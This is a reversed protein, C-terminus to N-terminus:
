DWNWHPDTTNLSDILWDRYSPMSSDNVHALTKECGIFGLSQMLNFVSQSIALHWEWDPDVSDLIAATFKEQDELAHALFTVRAQGPARNALHLQCRAKGHPTYGADVFPDLLNSKHALVLGGPGTAAYVRDGPEFTQISFTLDDDVVPLTTPM